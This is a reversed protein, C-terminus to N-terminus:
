VTYIEVKELCLLYHWRCVFLAHLEKQSLSLLQM